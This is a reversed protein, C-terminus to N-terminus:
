SADDSVEGELEARAAQFLLRGLLAVLEARVRPDLTATAKTPFVIGVQSAPSSHDLRAPRKTM